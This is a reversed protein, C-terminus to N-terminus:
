NRSIKKLILLHFFVCKSIFFISSTSWLRTEVLDAETYKIMWSIVDDYLREQEIKQRRNKGDRPEFQREQVHVITEPAILNLDRSTRCTLVACEEGVCECLSARM